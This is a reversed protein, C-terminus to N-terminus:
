ANTQLLVHHPPTSHSWIWIGMIWWFILQQVYQGDGLTHITALTSTMYFSSTEIKQNKKRSSQGAPCNPHIQWSMSTQLNSEQSSWNHPTSSLPIDPLFGCCWHAKDAFCLTMSPEKDFLVLYPSITLHFPMTRWTKLFGKSCASKVCSWFVFGVKHWHMM